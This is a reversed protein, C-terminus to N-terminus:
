KMGYKQKLFDVYTDYMKSWRTNWEPDRRLYVFRSRLKLYKVHNRMALANSYDVGCAKSFRLMNGCSVDNWSTMWSLSIVTSVPLGSAKAIEEDTMPRQRGKPGTRALLRCVIPPFQSLKKEIPIM